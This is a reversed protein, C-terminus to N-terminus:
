VLTCGTVSYPAISIRAFIFTRLFKQNLNTKPTTKCESDMESIRKANLTVGASNYATSTTLDVETPELM